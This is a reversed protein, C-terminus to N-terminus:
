RGNVQAGKAKQKAYSELSIGLQKALAVESQTLTIKSPATSRSVPAVTSTRRQQTPSDFSKPFVERMRSDVKQYYEDSTPDYGSNVLKNHLGCAFPTMEEDTGFWPNRSAWEEAKLDRPATQQVPAPQPTVASHVPTQPTQLANQEMGSVYQELQSRHTAAESFIKQAAVMGDTDGESHARRYKDQALQEAYEVKAKMEKVYAQQGWTLTQRLKENDALVGQTLAVAEQHQRELAERARREDHFKHNLRDIRKQVKASYTDLEGEDATEPAPTRGRDQEPTDDIIEIEVGNEVGEVEASSNEYSM